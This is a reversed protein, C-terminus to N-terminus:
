KLDFEEGAIKVTVRGDEIFLSMTRSLSKGVHEADIMLNNKWLIKRLITYNKKGIQFVNNTDGMQSGGCVKISLDSKQTGTEFLMGLLKAVGTDVYMFPNKKAKEPDSKSLPLMCHVLGGRRNKKDYIAIGLCSGLHPAVLIESPDESFAMEAMNVNTIKAM